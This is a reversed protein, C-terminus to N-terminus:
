SEAPQDSDPERKARIRKRKPPPEAGAEQCYKAEILERAREETLEAVTGATHGRWQKAFKCKVLGM